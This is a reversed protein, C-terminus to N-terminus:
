YFFFWFTFFHNSHITFPITVSLNLSIIYQIIYHFYSIGFFTGKKKVLLMKETRNKVSSLPLEKDETLCNNVYLIPCVIDCSIVHSNVLSSGSILKKNFDEDNLSEKKSSFESILRRSVYSISLILNFRITLSFLSLMKRFM